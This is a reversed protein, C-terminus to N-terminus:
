RSSPGDATSVSELPWVIQGHDRPLWEIHGTGIARTKESMARYRDTHLFPIDAIGRTELTELIVGM